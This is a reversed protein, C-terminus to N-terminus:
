VRPPQGPPPLSSDALWGPAAIPSAETADDVFPLTAPAIVDMAHFHVCHDQITGHRHDSGHQHTQGADEHGHDGSESRSHNSAASAAEHHLTGDRAEGLAPELAFVIVCFLLFTRFLSRM